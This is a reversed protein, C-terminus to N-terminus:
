LRVLLDGANRNGVMMGILEGYTLGGKKDRRPTAPHTHAPFPMLSHMSEVM